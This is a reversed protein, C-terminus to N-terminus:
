AYVSLFYRMNHNFEVFKELGQLLVSDALVAEIGM